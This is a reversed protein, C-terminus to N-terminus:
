MYCVQQSMQNKTITIDVFIMWTMQLLFENDDILNEAELIRKYRGGDNKNANENANIKKAVKEKFGVIDELTKSAIVKGKYTSSVRKPLERKGEKKYDLVTQTTKCFM